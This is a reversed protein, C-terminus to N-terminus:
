RQRPDSSSSAATLVVLALGLGLGGLPLLPPFSSLYSLYPAPFLALLTQLAMASPMSFGVIDFAFNLDYNVGDDVAKSMQSWGIVSVAAQCLFLLTQHDNAPLFPAAIAFFLWSAAHRLSLLGAVLTAGKLNLKMGVLAFLVPTQANALTTVADGVFSLTTFPTGTAAMGLGCVIAVNLPDKLLQTLPPAAKKKTSWMRLLRPLVFILYIKTPLDFLAAKGAAEDHVFEKIFVMASLGPASTALQYRATAAEPGLRAAISMALLSWAVSAFGLVPWVMLNRDVTISCLSRFIMCPLMVDLILKQIGAVHAPGFRSKVLRGVVAMVGFSLAKSVAAM